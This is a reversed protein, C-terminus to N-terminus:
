KSSGIEFGTTSIRFCDGATSHQTSGALPRTVRTINVELIDMYSTRLAAYRQSSEYRGIDARL